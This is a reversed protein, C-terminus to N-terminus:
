PAKLAPDIVAAVGHAVTGPNADGLNMMVIVTLGDDVYRAIFTKFGQWAGGHEVLRHGNVSGLSWGFGYGHTSGDNLRVPTWMQRLTAQPLVRDGYLAADWKALDLVTLYLSGDATTNTKEAVWEQNRLAGDRLEYGAARNPVIASESIIRATSMGLPTFIREQLQDGYFRGGVQGIIFGLLVYAPNSYSWKSGPPFDLPTEGIIRVIASDPYELHLDIREYLKESIGSTHTLLHRITIDRWAAPGNPYFRTLRDDLSLKGENVLMMVLTATFQKGVSGSQFITGTTVPVGHEINASGFGQARVIRGNRAIAVALGPIRQRVMEARIFEEVQAWQPADMTAPANQARAAEPAGLTVLLAAALVPRHLPTM